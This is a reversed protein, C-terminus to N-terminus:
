PTEDSKNKLNINQNYWKIFDVVNYWTSEIKTSFIANTDSCYVYGYGELNEIAKWLNTGQISCSNSSIHVSFYGHQEDHISEIKEVVPMLYDWDSLYFYSTVYDYSEYEDIEDYSYRMHRANRDGNIYGSLVPEKMFNAILKHGESVEKEDM